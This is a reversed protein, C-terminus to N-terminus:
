RAALHLGVRNTDAAPIRRLQQRWRGFLCGAQIRTFQRHQGHVVAAAFADGAARVVADGGIRVALQHQLRQFQLVLDEFAFARYAAQSRAVAELQRLM